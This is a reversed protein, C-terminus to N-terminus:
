SSGLSLRSRNQTWLGLLAEELVVGRRSHPLDIQQRQGRASSQSGCDIRHHSFQEGVDAARRCGSAADLLQGVRIQLGIGETGALTSLNADERGGTQIEVKRALVM